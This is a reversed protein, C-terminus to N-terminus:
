RRELETRLAALEQRLADVSDQGAVPGDPAQADRSVFFTALTATVYGFVAFAYLALLVCLLRGEATQPWYASGMTTMLMATWWLATSFDHIGDPSPVDRECALMGAAGGVTVVATMAVVYGFGRRRMSTRLAGIARNLSTLTRLLRVGRFSRTLRALRALRTVRAVRLAPLALSLLVVWNKRLYLRRDPAIALEAAFSAVFLTWIGRSVLSLAPSLGDTFEIVLLLLWGLGLVAMFPETSRIVNALLRWRIRRMPEVGSKM